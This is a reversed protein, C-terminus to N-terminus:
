SRWIYITLMYIRMDIGLFDTVGLKEFMVIFIILYKSQHFAPAAYKM